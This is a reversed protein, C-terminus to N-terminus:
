KIYNLCLVYSLHAFPEPVRSAYAVDYGTGDCKNLDATSELRKMIRLNGTVCPATLVSSKEIDANTQKVCDGVKSSFPKEGYTPGTPTPPESSPPPTPTPIKVEAPKQNANNTVVAGAVGAGALILVMVGLIAGIMVALTTRNTPKKPPQGYAAWEPQVGTPGYPQQPYGGDYQGQYPTQGYQYAPQGYQDTQGYQNQHAYQDQQAYQDSQGYAQAQTHQNAQWQQDPQGSAAPEGPADFPAEQGTPTPQDPQAWSSPQDSPVGEAPASPPLQETPSTGGPSDSRADSAPPEPQGTRDGWSDPPGYQSM